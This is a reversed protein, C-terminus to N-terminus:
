GNWYEQRSFGMSLPAQRAVTWLTAFLQLHSLLSLSKPSGQHSLQYLIRRCHPLGLKSEQTQSSARSSPIAVWELTRVQLIGHVSCDPPSCDVCDGLTLCSRAVFCLCPPSGRYLPLIRTILPMHLASPHQYAKIQQTTAIQSHESQPLESLYVYM